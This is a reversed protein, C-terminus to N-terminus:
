HGAFPLIVSFGGFLKPRPHDPSEFFHNRIMAGLTHDSHAVAPDDILIQGVYEPDDGVNPEEVGGVGRNM